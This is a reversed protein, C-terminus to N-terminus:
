TLSKVIQMVLGFLFLTMEIFLVLLSIKFLVFVPFILNIKAFVPNITIFANNVASLVSSNSNADPLVSFIKILITEIINFM